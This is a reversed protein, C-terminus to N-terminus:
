RMYALTLVLTLAVINIYWGYKWTIEVIERM